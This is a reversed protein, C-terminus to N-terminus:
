KRLAVSYFCQLYIFLIHSIKSMALYQSDNLLPDSYLKWKEVDLPALELPEPM